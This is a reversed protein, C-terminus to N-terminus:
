LGIDLLVLAPRDRPVLKRLGSGGEVASVRFNQRSLYDVLLRRQTAEDEVVIIHPRDDMIKAGQAEKGIASGLTRRADPEALRVHVIRNTLTRLGQSLLAPARTRLGCPGCEACILTPHTSSPKRPTVIRVICVAAGAVCARYAPRGFYHTRLHDMPRRF